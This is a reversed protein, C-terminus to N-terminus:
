ECLWAPVLSTGLRRSLAGDVIRVAGSGILETIETSDEITPLVYLLAALSTWRGHNMLHDLRAGAAYAETAFGVRLGHATCGPCAKAIRDGIEAKSWPFLKDEKQVNRLLWAVAEDLVPHAAHIYAPQHSGLVSSNTKHERFRLRTYLTGGPKRIMQLDEWILAALESRRCAFFFGLVLLCATHIDSPRKSKWFELVTNFLIPPKDSKLKRKRGGITCQFSLVEPSFVPDEFRRQIRAVRRLADVYGSVTVPSIFMKSRDGGLLPISMGVPPACRMVIFACYILPSEVSQIGFWQKFADFQKVATRIASSSTDKVSANIIAM